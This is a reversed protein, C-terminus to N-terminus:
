QKAQQASLERKAKAIALAENNLLEYVDHTDGELVELHKNITQLDGREAPGTLCSIPGLKALNNANGLFLHSLATCADEATFGCRELEKAALSYLAVVHNSALVAAAHYRTKDKTNITQTPNGMSSFLETVESLRESAGEIVFLANGLEKASETKSAIAFLPHTSYPYVGIEKAQTFIDSSLSGSAHVILKGKLASRIEPRKTLEEWVAGIADDPTTVYLLDSQGVLENADRYAKCGCLKAAHEASAFSRSTYGVIEHNQKLYLGLTCGVKGAGVFGIKM